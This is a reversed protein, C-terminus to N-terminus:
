LEGAAVLDLAYRVAPKSDFGYRQFVELDASQDVPFTDSKRIRRCLYNAAFQRNIGAAQVEAPHLGNAGIFAHLLHSSPFASSKAGM